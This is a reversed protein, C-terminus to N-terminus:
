WLGCVSGRVSGERLCVRRGIPSVKFQDTPEASAFRPRATLRRSRSGTFQRPVTLVVAGEEAWCEAACATTPRGAAYASKAQSRASCAQGRNPLAWVDVAAAYARQLEAQERRPKRGPLRRLVEVGETIAVTPAHCDEGSPEGVGNDVTSDGRSLPRTRLVCFPSAGAPAGFRASERCRM